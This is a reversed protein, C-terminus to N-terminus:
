TMGQAEGPAPLCPRTNHVAMWYRAMSHTFYFIGLTEQLTQFNSPTRRMRAVAADFDALAARRKAEMERRHGTLMEIVWNM